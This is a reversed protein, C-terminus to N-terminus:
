GVFFKKKFKRELTNILPLAPISAEVATALGRWKHASWVSHTTLSELFGPSLCCLFYFASIIHNKQNENLKEFEVSM